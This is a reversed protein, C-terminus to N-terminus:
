VGGRVEAERMEEETPWTQEGALTDPVNERTLPERDSPGAQSLVVEGSAPAEVEMGAGGGACSACLLASCTEHQLFILHAAIFHCGIGRKQREWFRAVGCIRVRVGVAGDIDDVGWVVWGRM